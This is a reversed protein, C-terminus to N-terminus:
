YIITSCSTGPYRALAFSCINFKNYAGILFLCNGGSHHCVFVYTSTTDTLVAIYNANALQRRYCESYLDHPRPSPVVNRPPCVKHPSDGNATRELPQVVDNALSDVVMPVDMAAEDKSEQPPNTPIESQQNQSDRLCWQKLYKGIASVDKPDMKGRLGAENSLSKRAGGGKMFKDHRPKAPQYRDNLIAQLVPKTYCFQHHINLDLFHVDSTLPTPTPSALRAISESPKDHEDDSDEDDDPDEVFESQFKGVQPFILAWLCAVPYCEHMSYM